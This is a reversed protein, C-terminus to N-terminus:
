LADDTGQFYLHAGFVFPTSKTKYGGLNTGGSGDPNVRWLKDGTGQFYIRTVLPFPNDNGLSATTGIPFHFNILSSFRSFGDTRKTLSQYTQELTTGGAQVIQNLSFGLQFRLWNIFLAGCGISVKNRDTPDTNDVFNARSSNLWIDGTKFSGNVGPPTLENLYFEAGIVRSLAEGASGGCNWGRQQDAMFVESAEVAVLFKILDSDTGTFAYCTLGTAACGLHYAGFTGVVIDVTFPLSGISINGFLAQLQAYDEECSGLVADALVPGNAGLAPDYNVVFHATTGGLAYNPAPVALREQGDNLVLVRSDKPRQTSM